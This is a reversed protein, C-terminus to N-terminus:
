LHTAMLAEAQAVTLGADVLQAKLASQVDAGDKLIRKALAIMAMNAETEITAAQALDEREIRILRVRGKLGDGGGRGFTWGKGDELHEVLDYSSQFEENTKHADWPDFLDLDPVRIGPMRTEGEPVAKGEMLRICRWPHQEWKDGPQTILIVRTGFHARFALSRCEEVEISGQQSGSPFVRMESQKGELNVAACAVVDCRVREGIEWRIRM